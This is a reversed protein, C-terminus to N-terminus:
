KSGFRQRRCGGRGCANGSGDCLRYEGGEIWLVKGNVLSEALKKRADVYIGQVTTRAINMRSACEEQTFGELDILRITEYEDVTMVIYNSEDAPSGLPGFRNSEPLCCVKRWKRPRPM